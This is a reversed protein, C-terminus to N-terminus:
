SKTPPYHESQLSTLEEEEAANLSRQSENMYPILGCIIRYPYLLGVSECERENLNWPNYLMLKPRLYHFIVYIALAGESAHPSGGESVASPPTISDPDPPLRHRFCIYQYCETALKHVFERLGM